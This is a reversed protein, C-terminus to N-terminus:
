FFFIFNSLFFIINCQNSAKKKRVLKMIPSKKSKINEEKEREKQSEERAISVSVSPVGKPCTFMHEVDCACEGSRMKDEQTLKNWESTDHVGNDCGNKEPTHGKPCPNPPHCYTRHHGNKSGEPKGQYMAGVDVKMSDIGHEPQPINESAQEAADDDGDYQYQFLNSLYRVEPDYDYEEPLYDHYLSNELYSCSGSAVLLFGAFAVLIFKM